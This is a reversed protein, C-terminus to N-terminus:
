VTVGGDDPVMQALPCGGFQRAALLRPRMLFADKEAMKLAKLAGSVCTNWVPRLGAVHGGTM